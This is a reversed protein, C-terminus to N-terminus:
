QVAVRGFTIEYRIAAKALTLAGDQRLIVPRREQIDLQIRRVVKIHKGQHHAALEKLFVGVIARACKAEVPDDADAAKQLMRQIEYVMIAPTPRSAKKAEKWIEENRKESEQEKRAKKEEETFEQTRLIDSYIKNQEM